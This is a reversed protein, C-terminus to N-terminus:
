AGLRRAAALPRGSSDQLGAAVARLPHSHRPSSRLPLSCLTRLLRPEACSELLRAVHALAPAGRKTARTEALLLEGGMSELETGIITVTNGDIRIVQADFLSALLSRRVQGAVEERLEAQRFPRKLSMQRGDNDELL